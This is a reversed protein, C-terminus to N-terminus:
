AQIQWLSVGFSTEPATLFPSQLWQLRLLLRVGTSGNRGVSM